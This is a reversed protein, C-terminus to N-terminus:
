LRACPHIACRRRADQQATFVRLRKESRILRRLSRQHGKANAIADELAHLRHLEERVLDARGQAERGRRRGAPSGRPKGRRASRRGPMRSPPWRSPRRRRTSSRQSRTRTNGSSEERTLTGGQHTAGPRAPSKVDLHGVNGADGHFARSPDTYQAGASTTLGAVELVTKAITTTMARGITAAFGATAIAEAEVQSSLM